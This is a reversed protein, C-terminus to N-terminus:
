DEWTAVLENSANYLEAPDSENNNWVNPEDWHLLDETDLSSDYSATVLIIESNPKLTISDFHYTQNGRVSVLKWDDLNYSTDSNNTVKVFESRKNVKISIGTPAAEKIPVASLSQSSADRWKGVANQKAQQELQKYVNEMKVNPEVIMVEALGQKLLLENLIRGDKLEVIALTRDYKDYMEKDFTLKVEGSEALLEKTYASAEPGYPEVPTNQKKTEPTNIYLMRVTVNENNVEIKFTDGDVYGSVPYWQDAKLVTKANDTAQACGSILLALLAFLIMNKIATIHKNM